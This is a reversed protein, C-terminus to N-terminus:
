VRAIRHKSDPVTCRNCNSAHASRSTINYGNRVNWYILNLRTNSLIPDNSLPCPHVCPSRNDNNHPHM